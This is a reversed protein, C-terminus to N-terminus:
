TPLGLVRIAITFYILLGCADVITAVLPSSAAAPDLKLRALVFPLTM